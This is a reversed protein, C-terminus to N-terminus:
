LTRCEALAVCWEQKLGHVHDEIRRVGCQGLVVHTLNSACKLGMGSATNHSAPKAAAIIARLAGAGGISRIM